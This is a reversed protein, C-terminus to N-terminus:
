EGTASIHNNYQITSFHSHAEIPWPYYEQIWRGSLAVDVAAWVGRREIDELCRQAGAPTLAYGHTGNLHAHRFPQLGEHPPQRYRKMGYFPKGFNVLYKFEIDPIRSVFVSDHELILITENLEVTKQWLRYHSLFCGAQAEVSRKDPNERMKDSVSLNMSEFVEFPKDKPTSADFITIDNIGGVETATKLCNRSLAESETHGKITICFAKM